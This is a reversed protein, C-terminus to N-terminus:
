NQHPTYGGSNRERQGKREMRKRKSKRKKEMVEELREVGLVM